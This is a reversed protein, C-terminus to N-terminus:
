QGTKRWDLPVELFGKRAGHEAQEYVQGRQKYAMNAYNTSGIVVDM